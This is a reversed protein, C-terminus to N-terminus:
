RTRKTAILDILQGVTLSTSLDDEQFEFGFTEEAQIILDTITLSDLGLDQLVNLEERLESEPITIKGKAIEKLTGFAEDRTTSM